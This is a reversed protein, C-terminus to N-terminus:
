SIFSIRRLQLEIKAHSPDICSEVKVIDFKVFILVVVM